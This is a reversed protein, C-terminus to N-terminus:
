AIKELFTIWDKPEKDTNEAVTQADLGYNYYMRIANEGKELLDVHRNRKKPSITIYEWAILPKLLASAAMYESSAQKRSDPNHKVSILDEVKLREILDKVYVRDFESKTENMQKIIHLTKIYRSEPLDIQCEPLTAIEKIGSTLSKPPMWNEQSPVYTDTNVYYAIVNKSSMAAITSASATVKTGASVNIYLENGKAQEVQFIKNLVSLLDVLKYLSIEILDVNIGNQELQNKIEEYYPWAKEQEKPFCIIILRNGKMRLVPQVIREIEWGLFAVHVKEKFL